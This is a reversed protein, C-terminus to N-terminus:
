WSMYGTSCTRECKKTIDNWSIEGTEDSREPNCIPVCENNELNYKEGQYICSAIECGTKYGTAAAEGLVSYRNRCESCQESADNKEYPDNTYGPVCSTAECPNWSKTDMNWTKIGVGHAVECVQENAVCANSALHYDEECSKIECIGYAGRTAIWKQEAYTANPAQPTCDLIDPECKDDKPHYGVACSEVTCNGGEQYSLANERNCPECIGNVMEFGTTCGTLTCMETEPDYEAPNGNITATYQCKNAWYAKDMDDVPVLLCDGDRHETCLRYCDSAKTAGPASYKWSGDGLTACSKAGDGDDGPTGDCYSGAKCEVCATKDENLMYGANCQHIECEDPVNDGYYDKGSVSSANDATCQRYCRAVNTNQVDSTYGTPCNEENKGDECYHGETCQVCKGGSLHFGPECQEIGCTDPENGANNYDRGSMKTAPSVVDCDKYCKAADSTGADSKTYPAPCKEQNIGDCYSNAPCQACSSRLVGDVMTFALYYGPVCQTIHCTDPVNGADNYNRGDMEAAPSTAVCEAWCDAPDSTGADSKTFAGYTLEACTKKGIDPNCVHDEPCEFCDDASDSTTGLTIKGAPCLERKTSPTSPTQHEPDPSWWNYGVEVCDDNKEAAYYYYGGTCWTINKNECGTNYGEHGATDNWSCTQTGGGFEATYEVGDQYCKTSVPTGTNLTTGHQHNEDEPCRHQETDDEPSYWGKFALICVIPRPTEDTNLWYGAKCKEVYQDFCNSPIVNYVASDGEGSTYWCSQTGSGTDNNYPLGTKYCEYISEATTNDEETTGQKPCTEFGLDNEASYNGRGVESCDTDSTPTESYYGANCTLMEISTDDCNDTYWGDAYHCVHKGKGNEANYQVTAYCASASTSGVPSHVEPAVNTLTAGDWSQAPIYSTGATAEPCPTMGAEGSNTDVTTTGDCYNDKKCTKCVNPDTPDEGTGAYYTGAPCTIPANSWQAVVTANETTFTLAASSTIFKGDSGIVNVDNGKYGAFTMVGKVPLTTMQTIATTASADSYWGTAYKLYVTEPAGATAAGNHDLTITYINPTWQAYLTIDSANASINTEV